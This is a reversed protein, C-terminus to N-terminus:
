VSKARRGHSSRSHKQVEARNEGKFDTEQQQVQFATTGIDDSIDQSANPAFQVMLFDAGQVTGTRLYLKNM